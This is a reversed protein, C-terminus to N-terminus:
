LDNWLYTAEAVRSIQNHKALLVLSRRVENRWQSDYSDDLTGQIKTVKVHAYIEKLTVPKGAVKLYHRVIETLDKMRICFTKPLKQYKLRGDAIM